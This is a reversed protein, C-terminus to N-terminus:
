IKTPLQNYLNSIPYDARHVECFKNTALIIGSSDSGRSESRDVLNKVFTKKFPFDKSSTAGFIGCM